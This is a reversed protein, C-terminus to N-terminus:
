SRHVQGHKNPNNPRSCHGVAMTSNGLCPGKSNGLGTDKAVASLCYMQTVPLLEKLRPACPFCMLGLRLIQSACLWSTRFHKATNM